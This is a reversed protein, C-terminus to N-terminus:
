AAASRRLADWHASFAQLANQDPTNGSPAFEERLTLPTAVTAPLDAGLKVDGVLVVRGDVPVSKQLLTQLAIIRQRLLLLPNAFAVRRERSLATWQDLREGGFVTGDVRKIELVLIGRTTLLLQDIQIEGDVGDPIVINTLADHGIARLTKRLARERRRQPTFWVWGAGLMLAAAGLAALLWYLLPIQSVGEVPM